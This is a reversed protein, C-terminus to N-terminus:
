INKTAHLYNILIGQESFKKEYETLVNPIDEKHLDLSVKELIYGNQSLSSLSYAFLYKNDTKQYINIKKDFLKEYLDLFYKNTLRRKVHRKKPWPDSFNLYLAAIKVDIYELIDKADLRMFRLNHPIEEIKQIARVLVSEFKEMGIFNIDPYLKAMEIIFDGKGMGIELHIPNENDFTDKNLKNIVIPHSEVIEKANKINRLRMNLEEKLCKDRHYM